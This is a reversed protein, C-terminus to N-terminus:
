SSTPALWASSPAPSTGADTGSEITVTDGPALSALQEATLRNEVSVVESGKGM